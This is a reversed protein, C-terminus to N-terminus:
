KEAIDFVSVAGRAKLTQAASMDLQESYVLLPHSGTPKEDATDTLIFSIGYKACAYEFLFAIDSKGYLVLSDTGKQKQLLIFTEISRTYTQIDSFTRAM